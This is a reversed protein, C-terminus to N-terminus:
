LAQSGPRSLRWYLAGLLGMWLAGLWGIVGDYDSALWGLAADPNGDTLVRTVQIVLVWGAHLGVCWGIHGSRERVLALLVGAAFLALLADLNRWPAADLLAHEVMYMAGAVDFAMGEPLAGPKLFHVLAYLFASGIVAARLGERRRIGAFLAGRFFTEELLGILLGGMLGQLVRGLLSLTSPPSSDPLRVELALLAGVLALLMLLGLVWGAALARLWHARAQGFGLAARNDLGLLWLLPWFGLLICLQAARGMVRAPEEAIWGGSVLVLALAAGGLLCLLLYLFFVLTLRM